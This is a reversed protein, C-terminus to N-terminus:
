VGGLHKVKLPELPMHLVSHILLSPQLSPPLLLSPSHLNKKRGRKDFSFKEFPSDHQDEEEQQETRDTYLTKRRVRRCDWRVDRTRVHKNGWYGWNGWYGCNGWYWRGKASCSNILVNRWTRWGLGDSSHLRSSNEYGAIIVEITKLLKLCPAFSVLSPFVFKM